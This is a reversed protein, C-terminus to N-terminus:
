YLVIDPVISRFYPYFGVLLSSIPSRVRLVGSFRKIRKRKTKQDNAVGMVKILATTALAPPNRGNSQSLQLLKHANTCSIKILRIRTPMFLIRM